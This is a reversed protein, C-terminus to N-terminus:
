SNALHKFYIHYSCLIISIFTKPFSFFYNLQAPMKIQYVLTPMNVHCYLFEECKVLFVCKSHACKGFM